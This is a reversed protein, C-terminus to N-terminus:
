QFIDGRECPNQCRSMGDNQKLCQILANTCFQNQYFVQKNEDCQIENECSIVGKKVLILTIQDEGGDPGTRATVKKVQIIQKM